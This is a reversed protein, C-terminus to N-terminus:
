FFFLVAWSSALRTPWCPARTAADSERRRAVRSGALARRATRVTTKGAADLGVMLIRMEKKGILGKFLKAFVSGMIFSLSRAVVRCVLARSLPLSALTLPLLAAM